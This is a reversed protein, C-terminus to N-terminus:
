LDKVLAREWERLYFQRMTVQVRRDERMCAFQRRSKDYRMVTWTNRDPDVVTDGPVPIHGPLYMHRIPPEDWGFQQYWQLDDQLLWCRHSAHMKEWGLFEPMFVPVELLSVDVGNLILGAESRPMPNGSSYTRLELEEWCCQAYLLLAAPYPKWIPTMASFTMPRVKRSVICRLLDCAFMYQPGLMKTSLVHASLRM